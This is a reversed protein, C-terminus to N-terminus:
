NKKATQVMNQLQVCQELKVAFSCYHHKEEDNPKGSANWQELVDYDLFEAWYDRDLTKMLFEKYPLFREYWDTSDRKINAESPNNKATCSYLSEPMIDKFAQRFIYRNKNGKLYLHRPISVAYDIVHYDLYPFIYRAGSYAGLLGAVDLRNHTNGSYIYTIVDYAFTLAPMKKDQYQSFFEKKLLEPVQHSIRFPRKRYNKGQKAKHRAQKLTKIFRNKEKENQDWFYKLFHLYEGHYFM